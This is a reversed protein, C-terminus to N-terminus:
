DDRVRLCLIDGSDKFHLPSPALIGTYRDGSDLQEWAFLTQDDTANIIEEQLRTFAARGEGYLLPMKVGFIGLLCYAEDEIRSTQRKAAWSMKKAVCEKQLQTVIDKSELVSREIGTISTTLGSASAKTAIYNWSAGYFIVDRPAILEQLAWGRTFRRCKSFSLMLAENSPKMDQKTDTPQAHGEVDALYVYCKTSHTYWSFMCNIAEELETNNSKDICCTDVWAYSLGDKEAQVCTYNIKVYGKKTGFPERQMDQLTVEEKEWTHSLVAYPPIDSSSFREVKRTHVNILRM